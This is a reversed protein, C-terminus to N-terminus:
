YRVNRPTLQLTRKVGSLLCLGGPISFAEATANKRPRVASPPEFTPPAVLHEEEWALVDGVRFLTKKGIKLHPPATGQQIDCEVSRPSRDHRDAVAHKDVLSLPNSWDVTATADHEM